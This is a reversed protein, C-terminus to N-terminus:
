ATVEADGAPVQDVVPEAAPTTALYLDRVTEVADIDAAIARALEPGPLLDTALFPRVAAAVLAPGGALLQEVETLGHGTAAILQADLNDPRVADISAGALLIKHM